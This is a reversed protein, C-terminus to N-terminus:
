RWVNNFCDVSGARDSRFSGSRVRPVRTYEWARVEEVVGAQVACLVIVAFVFPFVVVAGPEEGLEIAPSDEVVAVSDNASFFIALDETTERGEPLARDEVGAGAERLALVLRIRRCVIVAFTTLSVLLLLRFSLRRLLSSLHTKSPQPFHFEHL